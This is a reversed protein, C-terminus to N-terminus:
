LFLECFSLFVHRKIATSFFFPENDTYTRVTKYGKLTFVSKKTLKIRAISSPCICCMKWECTRLFRVSDWLAFLDIATKIVGFIKLAVFNLNQSNSPTVGLDSLILDQTFRTINFDFIEIFNMERKWNFSQFLHGEAHNRTTKALKRTFVARPASFAM